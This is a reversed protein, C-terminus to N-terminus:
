LPKTSKMVTRGTTKLVLPPLGAEQMEAEFGKKSGSDVAPIVRAGTIFVEEKSL